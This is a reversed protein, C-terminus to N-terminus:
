LMIKRCICGAVTILIRMELATFIVRIIIDTNFLWRCGNNVASTIKKKTIRIETHRQRRM